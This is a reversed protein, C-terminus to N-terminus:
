GYPHVASHDFVHQTRAIEARNRCGRREQHAQRRLDHFILETVKAKRCGTKFSRKIEEFGDKSDPNTFVFEGGRGRLRGVMERLTDNMPVVRTKGRKTFEVKIIGRKLDVNAWKLNLIEGLRMGTNLAFIVMERTHDCCNAVLRLEEDKTLIREKFVAKRLEHYAEETSGARKCVRQIRKGNDFYDLYYRANGSHSKRVYIAGFGFNRHAKNNGKPM